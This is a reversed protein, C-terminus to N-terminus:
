ASQEFDQAPRAMRRGVDGPMLFWWCASGSETGKVVTAEVRVPARERPRLTLATAPSGPEFPAARLLTAVTARDDFFYLFPRGELRKPSMNLLKGAAMNAGVVTGDADIELCALPAREFLARWTIDVTQVDREIRQARLEAAAFEQLLLQCAALCSDLLEAEDGAGCRRKAKAALQRLRGVEMTWRRVAPPETRHENM